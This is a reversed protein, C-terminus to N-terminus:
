DEEHKADSPDSVSQGHGQISLHNNVVTNKYGACLFIDAAEKNDDESLSHDTPQTITNIVYIVPYM